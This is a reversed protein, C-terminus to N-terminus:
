KKQVILMLMGLPRKLFYNSVVLKRKFNSPLAHVRNQISRCNTPFPDPTQKNTLSLNTHENMNPIPEACIVNVYVIETEMVSMGAM